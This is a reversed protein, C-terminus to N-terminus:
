LQIVREIQAGTSAAVPVQGVLIQVMAGIEVQPIGSPCYVVTM